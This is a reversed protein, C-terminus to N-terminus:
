GELKPLQIGNKTFYHELIAGLYRDVLQQKQLFDKDWGTKNENFEMLKSLLTFDGGTFEEIMGWWRAALAESKESGPSEGAQKLTVAEDLLQRYTAFMKEGREPDNGFRNQVHDTLSTDLSKWVWYNPNDMRILEIIEAYKKFDVEKLGLVEEHLANLAARVQQLQDIQEKIAKSQGELAAAVEAPSDLPLIREKIQELSFGLYKFSLIQHLRVVDKDSYRRRGGTSFASPKLLGERDYYQLTRVTVGMKRALQGVTWQHEQM